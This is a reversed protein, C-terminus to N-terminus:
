APRKLKPLGERQVNEFQSAVADIYNRRLCSLAEEQESIKDQLKSCKSEMSKLEQRAIGLATDGREARATVSKLQDGLQRTKDQPDIPTKPSDESDREDPSAM